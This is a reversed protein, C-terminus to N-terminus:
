SVAATAVLNENIVIGGCTFRNKFYLVIHWPVYNKPAIQGGIIRRSTGLKCRCDLSNSLEILIFVILLSKFNM